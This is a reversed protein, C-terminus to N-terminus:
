QFFFGFFLAPLIGDLTETALWNLAPRSQVTPRLKRGEEKEEKRKKRKEKKSCRSVRKREEVDHTEHPLIYFKKKKKM